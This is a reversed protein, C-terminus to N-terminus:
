SLETQANEVKGPARSTRTLSSQSSVSPLCSVSHEPLSLSRNVGPEVSNEMGSLHSTDDGLEM